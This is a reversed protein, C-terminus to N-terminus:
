ELPHSDRGLLTPWASHLSSQAPLLLGLPLACLLCTLLGYACASTISGRFQYVPLVISMVIDARQEARAHQERHLEDYRQKLEAIAVM